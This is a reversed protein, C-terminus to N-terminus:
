SGKLTHTVSYMHTHIHAYVPFVLFVNILFCRSVRTRGVRIDTGLFSNLQHLLLQLKANNFKAMQYQFANKM